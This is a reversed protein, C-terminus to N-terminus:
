TPPSGLVIAFADVAADVNSQILADSAGTIAAVTASKNAGLVVRLMIVAVARPSQFAKVAWLLRKDHMGVDQSFPAVDDNGSSIKQASVFCAVAILDQFSAEATSDDIMIRFLEEYTAAQVPLSAFVIVLCVLVIKRM